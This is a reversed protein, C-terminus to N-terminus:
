KFGVRLMTYVANSTYWDAGARRTQILYYTRLCMPGGLRWEIGFPTIRNESNREHTWDYFLEYQAFASKVPALVKLPVNVEVRHRSRDNEPAGDFWRHEYRNRFVLSAWKRLKVTPNIEFEVRNQTVSVTDGAENYPSEYPNYTYNVGFQLNKVYEFKIQPSLVLGAPNPFTDSFRWEVYGVFDIHETDLAKVQLAPRWQIDDSVGSGATGLAVAVVALRLLDNRLCKMRLRLTAALGPVRLAPCDGTERGAVFLGGQELRSFVDFVV